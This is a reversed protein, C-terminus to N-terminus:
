REAPWVANQKSSTPTAVPQPAMNSGVPLVEGAPFASRPMNASEHKVFLPDLFLDRANWAVAIWLVAVLIMMVAREIFGRRGSVTKRMNECSVRALGM